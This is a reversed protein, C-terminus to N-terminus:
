RKAVVTSYLARYREAILRPALHAVSQRCAGEMAALEARRGALNSLVARLELPNAPDFLWGTVDRQILEPLAGRNAAVVPVGAALAEATSMGFTEEYVSPAILADIAAFFELPDPVVGLYEVNALPYSARLERLYQPEGHGAVLLTFEGTDLGRMAELLVHIGKNAEVRGLFGLRLPGPETRRNARAGVVHTPNAIVSAPTGAFAGLARHRDLVFRSVGVVHAVHRTAQVRPLSLSVCEAHRRGCPIGDLTLSSRACLLYYDHLTHVIPVGAKHAASWAAVTFGTLVHSHMVDPREEALVRGVARGMLPNFADALHWVAKKLSSAQEREAFSYVNRLRVVRVRIDDVTRDQEAASMASTLVVVEDGAEHLATSLTRAM